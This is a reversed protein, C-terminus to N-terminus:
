LYLYISLSLYISLYISLHISIDSANRQGHPLGPGEHLHGLRPLDLRADVRLPLGVPLARHAAREQVEEDVRQADEVVHSHGVAGNPERGGQREPVPCVGLHCPVVWIQVPVPGVGAM